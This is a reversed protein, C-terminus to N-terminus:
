IYYQLIAGVAAGDDAVAAITATLVNCYYYLKKVNYNMYKEM